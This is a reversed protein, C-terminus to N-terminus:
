CPGLVPLVSSAMGKIVVRPRAAASAAGDIAGVVGAASGANARQMVCSCAVAALCPTAASRKVAIVAPRCGSGLTSGSSSACGSNVVGM